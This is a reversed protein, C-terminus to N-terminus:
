GPAYAGIALCLARDEVAPIRNCYAIRTSQNAHTVGFCFDRQAQNTAFAFPTTTSFLAAQDAGTDDASALVADDGLDVEQAGCAALAGVLGFLLLQRRNASMYAEKGRGLPNFAISM